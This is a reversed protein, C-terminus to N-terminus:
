LCVTVGFVKSERRMKLWREVSGWAMMGDEGKGGEGVVVVEGGRDGMGTSIHASGPADIWARSGGFLCIVSVDFFDQHGGGWSCFGGGRSWQSVNIAVIWKALICASLNPQAATRRPASRPATVCSSWQNTSVPTILGSNGGDVGAPWLLPM